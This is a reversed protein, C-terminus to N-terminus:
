RYKNISLSMVDINLLEFDAQIWGGRGVVEIVKSIRDIKGKHHKKFYLKQEM